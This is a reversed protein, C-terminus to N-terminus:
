SKLPGDSFIHFSLKAQMWQAGRFVPLCFQKEVMTGSLRYQGHLYLTIKKKEDVIYFSFPHDFRIQPTKSFM